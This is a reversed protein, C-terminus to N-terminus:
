CRVKARPVLAACDPAKPLTQRITRATTKAKSIPGPKLGSMEVRGLSPKLGRSVSEQMEGGIGFLALASEDSVVQGRLYAQFFDHSDGGSCCAVSGEEDAGLGPVAAAEELGGGVGV